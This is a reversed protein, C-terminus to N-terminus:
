PVPALVGPEDDDPDDDETSKGKRHEDVLKSLRDAIREDSENTARQDILAARM